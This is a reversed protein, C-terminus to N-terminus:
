ALASRNHARRMNELHTVAELHAPNVCSRSRCLHDLELEAPIPGVLLEYALRHVRITGSNRGPRGIYGYGSDNVTGLWEWCRGLEPAHLPLAGEKNVRRWLRHEISGRSGSNTPDGHRLLRGYHTSCYGRAAHPRTCGDMICVPRVKAGEPPRHRGHKQFYQLCGSCLGKARHPRRRCNSCTQM